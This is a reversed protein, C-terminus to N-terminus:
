ELETDAALPAAGPAQLAQVRVDAERQRVRAVLEALPYRLLDLREPRVRAAACLM